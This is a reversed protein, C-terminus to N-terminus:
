PEPNNQQTHPKIVNRYYWRAYENRKRRFEPDNAYRARQRRSEKLKYRRLLEPNDKIRQQYARNAALRKARFEPDTAYRERLRKLRRRNQEETM